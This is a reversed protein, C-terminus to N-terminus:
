SIKEIKKKGGEGNENEGGANEPKDKKKAVV